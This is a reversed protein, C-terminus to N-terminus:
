NGTEYKELEEITFIAKDNSTMFYVNPYEERDDIIKINGKTWTNGNLEYGREVLTSRTIYNPNPTYSDNFILNRLNSPSLLDRLIVNPIKVKLESPNEKKNLYVGVYVPNELQYKSNTYLVVTFPRKSDFDDINPEEGKTLNILHLTKNEVFTLVWYGKYWGLSIDFTPFYARLPLTVNSDWISMQFDLDGLGYDQFIYLNGELQGSHLITNCYIHKVEGNFEPHDLDIKQDYVCGKIGKKPITYELEQNLNFVSIRNITLLQEVVNYM